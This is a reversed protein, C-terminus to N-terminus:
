ESSIETNIPNLKLDNEKEKKESSVKEKPKVEQDEM